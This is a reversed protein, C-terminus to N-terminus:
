QQLSQRIKTLRSCFENETLVTKKPNNEGISHILKANITALIAKQFDFNKALAKFIRDLLNQYELSGRKYNKGRWWLTQKKQWIKNRQSGKKKAEKGYLKCMQKQEEFDDFKLAQLLGEASLCIIRDFVFRHSFFNSLANAPYKGGSNIDIIDIM